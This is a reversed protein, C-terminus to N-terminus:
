HRSVRGMAVLLPLLAPFSNNPPYHIHVDCAQCGFANHLGILKRCLEMYM